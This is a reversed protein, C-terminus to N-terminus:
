QNITQFYPQLTVFFLHSGDEQILLRTQTVHYAEGTERYHIEQAQKELWQGVDENPCDIRDLEQEYNFVIKRQKM